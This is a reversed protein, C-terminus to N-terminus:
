MYDENYDEIPYFGLAELIAIQKKLHKLKKTWQTTAGNEYYEELTSQYEYYLDYLKTSPKQKM